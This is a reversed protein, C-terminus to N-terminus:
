IDEEYISLRNRLLRTEEHMTNLQDLLRTIVEVGELNIDMEYHLMMAKEIERVQEAPIFLTKELETLTVLGRDNLSYIFSIDVRHNLCFEEAKVLDNTKM